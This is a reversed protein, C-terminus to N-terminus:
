FQEKIVSLDDPSLYVERVLVLTVALLPTAFLLGLVGYVAGLMLQATILLAPPVAVARQQIAPTILFSEVTQIIIYIVGVWLAKSSSQQLALLVSPAAAIFPGFNPIWGLVAALLGLSLSFPIGIAALSLWTLLGVAIMASIRGILWWQLTSALRELLRTARDRETAPLLAIFGACYLEPQLALYTGIVIVLLAGAVGGLLTYGFSLLRPVARSLYDGASGEVVVGKLIPFEAIRKELWNLATALDSRLRPIQWSLDPMLSWLLLAAASATLAIALYLSRKRSVASIGSILYALGKLYIAFLISAFALFFVWSATWLLFLLLFTGTVSILAFAITEQAQPHM